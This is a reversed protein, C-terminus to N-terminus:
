CCGPPGPGPRARLFFAGPGTKGPRTGPHVRGQELGQVKRLGKVLQLMGAKTAPLAIKRIAYVTTRGRKTSALSIHPLTSAVSIIMQRSIDEITPMSLMKGWMAQNTHEYAFSLVNSAVEPM